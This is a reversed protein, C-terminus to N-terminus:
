SGQVTGYQKKCEQDYSQIEQNALVVMIEAFMKDGIISSSHDVSQCYTILDEEFAAKWALMLETRELPLFPAVTPVKFSPFDEDNFEEVVDLFLSYLHHRRTEEDQTGDSVLEVVEDGPQITIDPDQEGLKEKGSSHSPQEESAVAPPSVKGGKKKMSKKAKKTTPEADEIITANVPNAKRKNNNHGPVESTEVVVVSGEDGLAATEDFKNALDTPSNYKVGKRRPRAAGAKM